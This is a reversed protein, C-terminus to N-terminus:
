LITMMTCSTITPVLPLHPRRARRGPDADGTRPRRGHRACTYVGASRGRPTGCVDGHQQQVFVQYHRIHCARHGPRLKSNSRGSSPDSFTDLILFLM